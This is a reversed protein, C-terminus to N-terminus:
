EHSIRGGGGSVPVSELYSFSQLVHPLVELGGEVTIHCSDRFHNLPLSAPPSMVRGSGAGILRMHPKRCQVAPNRILIFIM